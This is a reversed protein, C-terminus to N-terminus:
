ARRSHDQIPHQRDDVFYFCRQYISIACNGTHQIHINSTMYFFILFIPMKGM